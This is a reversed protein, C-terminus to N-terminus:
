KKSRTPLISAGEALGGRAERVIEKFSMIVTQRLLGIVYICTEHSNGDITPTCLATAGDPIGVNACNVLMRNETYEDHMVEPKGLIRALCAEIGYCASNSSTGPIVIDSKSASVIGGGCPCKCDACFEHHKKLIDKITGFGAENGNDGTAITLIGRNKAVDLLENWRVIEQEPDGTLDIPSGTAGHRIGKENCTIAEITIIAKPKFEDLVKKSEKITEKVSKAPWNKVLVTYPSFIGATLEWKEKVPILDAGICTEPMCREGKTNEEYDVFIVPIARLGIILARALAAAGPPGDMEITNAVIFVYDGEKVRERIKEAALLTLPRGYRERTEKYVKMWPYVSKMEGGRGRRIVPTTGIPSCVINDITDGFGVIMDETWESM